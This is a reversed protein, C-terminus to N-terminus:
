YEEYLVILLSTVAVIAAAFASAAISLVAAGIASTTWRTPSLRM